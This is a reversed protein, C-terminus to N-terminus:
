RVVVRLHRKLLTGQLEPRADRRGQRKGHGAAIGAGGSTVTWTRRPESWLSTSAYGMIGSSSAEPITQRTPHPDPLCAPATSQLELRSALPSAAAERRQEKLSSPSRARGITQGSM